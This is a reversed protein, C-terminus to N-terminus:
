FHFGEFLEVLIKRLNSPLGRGERMAAESFNYSNNWFRLCDYWQSVHKGNSSSFSSSDPLWNNYKNERVQSYLYESWKLWNTLFRDLGDLQDLLLNLLLKEYFWRVQKMVSAIQNCLISNSELNKWAGM